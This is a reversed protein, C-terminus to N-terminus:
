SVIEIAQDPSVRPPAEPQEAPYGVPVIAIPHLNKPIQLIKSVKEEDFSGIFVTGLGLEHALLMLNQASCSVDCISYLNKGRKYYRKEIRDDTCGVIVLPAQSIFNQEFSARALDKKLNENFIFYFKRSQLNGASPAWILADILEAIIEEPIPKSQFERISRRNKITELMDKM